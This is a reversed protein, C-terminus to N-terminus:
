PPPIKAKNWQLDDNPLEGGLSDDDGSPPYSRKGGLNDDDGADGQDDGIKIWVYKCPRANVSVSIIVFFALIAALMIGYKKIKRMKIMVENYWM